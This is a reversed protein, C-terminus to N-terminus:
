KSLGGVLVYKMSWGFFILDSYEKFQFHHSTVDMFSSPPSYSFISFLKALLFLFRAWINAVLLKPPGEPGSIRIQPGEPRRKAGRAEKVEDKGGKPREPRTVRASTDM